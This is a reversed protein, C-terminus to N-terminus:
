TKRRFPVVNPGLPRDDNAPVAQAVVRPRYRTLTERDYMKTVSAWPVRCRHWTGGFRLSVWLGTEDTSLGQVAAPFEFVLGVEGTLHTPLNARDADVGLMLAGQRGHRADNAWADVQLRLMQQPTM